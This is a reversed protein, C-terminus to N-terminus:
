VNSPKDKSIRSHKLFYFNLRLIIMATYDALEDQDFDM